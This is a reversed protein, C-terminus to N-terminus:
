RAGGTLDYEFTGNKMSELIAGENQEYEQATMKEIQSESFSGKGANAPSTGKSRGVSQAAEKSPRGKKKKGSDVKYLDIARAASRADTENEYLADQVWKPQESVWKHFDPDARLDDFDPHFKKLEMEAKDKDLKRELGQLREMKKEGMELAELARKQAITDVIAAVDPYKNVWDKIEDESKPFKIQKRTAQALQEQVKALEKEKQDVTQQMHRRLDGYRKKFSAEEANEPTSVELEQEEQIVEDIIDDEEHSRGYKAM